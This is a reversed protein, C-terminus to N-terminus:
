SIFSFGVRKNYPHTVPAKLLSAPVQPLVDMFHEWLVKDAQIDRKLALYSAERFLSELDAGSFGKTLRALEAWQQPTVDGCPTKTSFYELMELRMAPTPPPIFLVEDFRGPRLIASDLLHPKNTAALVVVAGNIESDLRMDSGSQKQIGDMETLLLSLIRDASQEEGAESGRERAIAEIQDIFLVCPSASRASAFLKSLNQESEGVVKSVIETANVTLFNVKSASAIALALKSKGVGPPGYLLVGCPPKAGLLRFRNEQEFPAILSAKLSVIIDDIGKLEDFSASGLTTAYESLASAKIVSFAKEFTKLPIPPLDLSTSGKGMNEIDIPGNSSLKIHSLIVHRCLNSIDSGTFGPTRHAIKALVRDGESNGKDRDSDLQSNTSILSSSSESPNSHLSSDDFLKPFHKTQIKLIDLRSSPSPINFYFVRELRKSRLIAPDLASISACIGIILIKPSIEGRRETVNEGSHDRTSTKSHSVALNYSHVSDLLSVFHSLLRREIAGEMKRRDSALAEIEDIIIVSPATSKAREFIESLVAETAGEGSRFIEPANVLTAKLRSMDAFNKALHTKGSGSAGCFLFGHPLDSSDPSFLANRSFDVLDDIVDDLGGVESKLESKLKSSLMKCTNSGDALSSDGSSPAPSALFSDKWPIFRIASHEKIHFLKPTFNPISSSSSSLKESDASPPACSVVYVLDLRNFFNIVFYSGESLLTTSPICLAALPGSISPLSPILKRTTDITNFYFPAISLQVSSAIVPKLPSLIVLNVHKDEANLTKFLSVALISSLACCQLDCLSPSRDVVIRAFSDAIASRLQIYAGEKLKLEAYTVQLHQFTEESVYFLPKPPLLRDELDSRFKKVVLPSSLRDTPTEMGTNQSFLENVPVKLGHSPVATRRLSVPSSFSFFQVGM